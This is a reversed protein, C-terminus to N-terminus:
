MRDWLVDNQQKAALALLETLPFARQRLSVTPESPDDDAAEPGSAAPTAKLGQELRALASPIDAAMIAGPITGSHGMLKLLPLAFEGDMFFQGSKSEFKVLM